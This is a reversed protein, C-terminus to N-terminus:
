DAAPKLLRPSATKVWGAKRQGTGPRGTDGLDERATEVLRQLQAVVKPHKAAVNHDEHIDTKLHFLKLPQAPEPKGWNRKKAKMAVFMKWPGSRVAQL